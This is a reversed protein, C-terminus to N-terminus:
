DSRNRKAHKANKQPWSRFCPSFAWSMVAQPSAGPFGAWLIKRLGSLPPVVCRFKVQGIKSKIRIRIRRTGDTDMRSIRTEDGTEESTGRQTNQTRKRGVESALASLGRCSLRPHLGLFGAPLNKRLGSLAPSAGDGRGSKVPVTCDSHPDRGGRACHDAGERVVEHRRRCGSNPTDSPARTRRSPAGFLLRPPQPGRFNLLM